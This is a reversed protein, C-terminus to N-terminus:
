YYKIIIVNDGNIFYKLEREWNFWNGQALFDNTIGHQSM